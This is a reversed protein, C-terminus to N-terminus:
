ECPVYKIAELFSIQQQHSLDQLYKIPVKEMIYWTNGMRETSTGSKEPAILLSYLFVLCHYRSNISLIRCWWPHHNDWLKYPKLWGLHHLIKLPRLGVYRERKLCRQSSQLLGQFAGNAGGFSTRSTGLSSADLALRRLILVKRGHSRRHSPWCAKIYGNFMKRFLIYLIGPAVVEFPPIKVPAECTKLIIGYRCQASNPLNPPDPASPCKSIWM